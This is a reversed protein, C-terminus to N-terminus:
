KVKKVFQEFRKTSDEFNSTSPPTGAGGTMQEVFQQHRKPDIGADGDSVFIMVRTKAKGLRKFHDITEQVGGKDQVGKRPGDFHAGGGGKRSIEPIADMGLLRDRSLPELWYARDDFTFLAYRDTSDKPRSELVDYCIYLGAAFRQIMTAATKEDRKPLPEP